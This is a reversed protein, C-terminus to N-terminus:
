HNSLLELGAEALNIECFSKHVGSAALQRAVTLLMNSNRDVFNDGARMIKGHALSSYKNWGEILFLMDQAAKFAAVLAILIYSIYTRCGEDMSGPSLSGHQISGEFLIAGM